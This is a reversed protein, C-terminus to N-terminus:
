ETRPIIANENQMAVSGIMKGLEHVATIMLSWDVGDLKHTM